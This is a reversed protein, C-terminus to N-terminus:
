GDGAQGEALEDLVASNLPVYRWRLVEEIQHPPSTSSWKQRTWKQKKLYFLYGTHLEAYGTPLSRQWLFGPVGHGKEQFAAEPISQMAKAFAKEV